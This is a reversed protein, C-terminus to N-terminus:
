ATFRSAFGENSHHRWTIGYTARQALRRALGIPKVRESRGAKQM